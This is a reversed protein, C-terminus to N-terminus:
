GRSQALKGCTALAKQPGGSSRPLWRMTPNRWATLSLADMGGRGVRMVASGNGLLDPGGRSSSDNM